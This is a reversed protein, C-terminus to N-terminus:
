ARLYQDLRVPGQPQVIADDGVARVLRQNAKSVCAAHRSGIPSMVVIEGDILEVRDRESLIGVEAMRHYEDATFRKKIVASAM